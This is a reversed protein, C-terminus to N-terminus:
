KPTQRLLYVRYPRTRSVYRPVAPIVPMVYRPVAPIVPMLPRSFGGVSRAQLLQRATEAKAEREAQMEEMAIDGATRPVSFLWPNGPSVAGFVRRSEKPLARFLNEGIRAQNPRANGQIKAARNAVVGVAVMPTGNTIRQLGIRALLVDGLDAGVTIEVERLSRARLDPNVVNKTAWLMAYASGVANAAAEADTASSGMGFYALIGDGTNKEFEGGYCRAADMLTPILLNLTALMKEPESAYRMALKTSGVLDAFLVAGRTERASGVIIEERDPVERMGTIASLRSTLRAKREAARRKLWDAVSDSIM